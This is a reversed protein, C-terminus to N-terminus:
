ITQSFINTCETTNYEVNTLVQLKVKVESCVYHQLLSSLSLPCRSLSLSLISLSLFSSRCASLSISLCFVPPLSLSLSFFISICRFFLTENFWRFQNNLRSPSYWKLSFFLNKHKTEIVKKPVLWKSFVQKWSKRTPISKRNNSHQHAFQLWTLRTQWNESPRLATM